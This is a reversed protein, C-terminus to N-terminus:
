AEKGMKEKKVCRVHHSDLMAGLAFFVMAVLVLILWINMM